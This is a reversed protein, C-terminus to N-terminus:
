PQRNLLNTCLELYYAKHKERYEENKYHAPNDTDASFYTCWRSGVAQMVNQVTTQHAQARAILADPDAIYATFGKANQFITEIDIAIGDQVKQTPPANKAQRDRRIREVIEDSCKELDSAQWYLHADQVKIDPYKQMIAIQEAYFHYPALCGGLTTKEPPEMFSLTLGYPMLEAFIAMDIEQLAQDTIQGNHSKKHEEILKAKAEAAADNIAKRAEEVAKRADENSKESASQIEEEIERYPLYLANACERFRASAPYDAHAPNVPLTEDQLFACPDPLQRSTEEALAPASLGAALAFAALTKNCFKM